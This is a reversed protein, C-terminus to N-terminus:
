EYRNNILYVNQLTEPERYVEQENCKPGAKEGCFKHIINMKTTDDYGKLYIIAKKNKSCFEAIPITENWYTVTQSGYWYIYTNPYIKKLFVAYKDQLGGSYMYGLYLAPEVRECELGSEISIILPMTKYNYIYNNISLSKPHRSPIYRIKEIILFLIVLTFIGYLIKKEYKKYNEILPVFSGSFIKYSVAMGLPFSCESFILYHFDCHKAVLLILATISLWVGLITRFFLINKKRIWSVITILFALTIICYLSTFVTDTLFLDKLNKSFLSPDIVREEGKGYIGDHTALNWVWQFMTKIKPLAPIIFIFFSAITMGIYALRHKNRDLIFLVLIIVPACTYKSAILFGSFIAFLIVTKNTIQKNIYLKNEPANVFLYAMFFPAVIIILSEPGLVIARQVININILPTIQFLMSLGISGTHRLIYAGTFYNVCVFLIILVISCTYLYSESNMIVDQFLPTHSSTFLHKIYFIVAAFCQVTTGPHDIHGIEM